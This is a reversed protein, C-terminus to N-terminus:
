RSDPRSTAGGTASTWPSVEAPLGRTGLGSIAVRKGRAEDGQDSTDLSRVILTGTGPKMECAPVRIVVRRNQSRDGVDPSQALVPFGTVVSGLLLLRLTSKRM